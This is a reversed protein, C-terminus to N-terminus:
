WGSEPVRAQRHVAADIRATNSGPDTGGAIPPAFRTVVGPEQVQAQRRLEPHRDTLQADAIQERRIASHSLRKVRSNAGAGSATSSSTTLRDLAAIV